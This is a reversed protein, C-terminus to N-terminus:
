EQKGHYDKAAAVGTLAALAGEYLALMEDEGPVCTVPAIFHVRRRIWDVVLDNHALGGTLIIADVEGCLVAALAGIEKSVQYAMAELVEKAHDDGQEIATIIESADHTGLYAVLGGNRKIMKHIEDLSYKGSFCLRALQGAPLGGSREPSFPGDGDLANNVDIVRGGQHAGVSIGGGLHAVIFRCRAYPKSIQKAVRRAVAKQNLAHFISMRWIDPTGSYRALPCLEDVVVPDVIFSAKGLDDGLSRALLAGLNSAHEGMVANTLDAVMQDNVRYCGGELPYLLGGRGVIADLTDLAIAHEQLVQVVLDKRFPLQDTMKAYRALQEHAHPLSQVMLCTQGEYVAVKTSTSGPNVVLIRPM